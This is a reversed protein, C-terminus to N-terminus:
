RVTIRDQASKGPISGMLKIGFVKPQLLIHCAKLRRFCTARVNRVGPNWGPSVHIEGNALTCIASPSPYILGPHFGPAATHDFAYHLSFTQWMQM